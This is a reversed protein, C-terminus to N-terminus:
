RRGGVFSVDATGSVTGALFNFSGIGTSDPGIFTFAGTAPDTVNVSCSYNVGRSDRCSVSGNANVFVIDGENPGFPVQVDRVDWTGQYSGATLTMPMSPDDATIGLQGLLATAATTNLRATNNVIPKSQYGFYILGGREVFVRNYTLAAAQAPVNNFTLVRADGLTAIAYSGTGIGTCNRTSGDTFRQRCAYYTVANAGSGTFAARVLTNTTFYGPAVGSNVPASGVTGISVTTPTWWENVATSYTVGGYVFSAPGYICPRATKSAIMSELTSSNTGNTNSEASNCGTGAPQASATGGATIAPTYQSVLNSTGVPSNAGAPYYAIANVLPTVAQYFLASGTPFAATGLVTPAAISLNTFGAARVQAYVDAMSRGGVDFTARNTRGTEYGDCYNYTSNGLADRVSSVNEFNIPCGVWASGNWHLDANRQPDSGFSWRALNGNNARNRRDVFRTTNAADPSAQALSATLVRYYYNTANTFTLTHLQVTPAPPTTAAPTGSTQTNIAVVTPLAAATLGADAVVATAAALLAADRAAANPAAVVAPDGLAAVLDPLLELVKRQIATDIQAQTIATNDVAISGVVTAPIAAAQQQAALVVLRAVTAPNTSGDTPAPNVATNTYDAFLSTGVGTAGQVAKAADATSAGTSAITSQVLTSLPSVVATQDAPASLTFARLVPGSDADVADTGVMAVIPFKGVDANPVALTVNGNADTRGQVEDAPADCRGNTNKDMCVLANRLVGDIAKITVDTTTSPTVGGGANSGDDDSGGCAALALVAVTIAALSGPFSSSRRANM